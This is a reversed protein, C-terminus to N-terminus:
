TSFSRTTAHRTITTTMVQVSSIGWSAECPDKHLNSGFALTLCSEEHALTVDILQGIFDPGSGGCVNIGRWAINHPAWMTWAMKDDVKMFGTEHNWDDLFWFQARIRIMNHPPLGEYAKEVERGAFKCPGGLIAGTHCSGCESVSNNSWGFAGDDFTEFVVPTWSGVMIETVEAHEEVKKEVSTAGVLAVISLVLILATRM